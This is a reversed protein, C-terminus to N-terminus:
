SWDRGTMFETMHDGLPTVGERMGLVLMQVDAQLCCSSLFFHCCPFLLLQPCARVQNECIDIFSQNNTRYAEMVELFDGGYVSDEVTHSAM